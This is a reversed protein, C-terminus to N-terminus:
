RLRVRLLHSILLTRHSGIVSKGIGNHLQCNPASLQVTSQPSKVYCQVSVLDRVGHERSVRRANDQVDFM